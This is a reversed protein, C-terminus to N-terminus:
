SVSYILWYEHASKRKKQNYLICLITVFIQAYCLIM